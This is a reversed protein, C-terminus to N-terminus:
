RGEDRNCVGHRYVVAAATRGGLKNKLFQRMVDSDATFVVNVNRPFLLGGYAQVPM